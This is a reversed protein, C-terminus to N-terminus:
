SNEAASFKAVPQYRSVRTFVKWNTFAAVNEATPFNPITAPAPIPINDSSSTPIIDKKLGCSLLLELERLGLYWLLQRRGLWRKNM